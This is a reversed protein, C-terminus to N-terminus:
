VDWIESCVLKFFYPWFPVINIVFCRIIIQTLASVRGNCIVVLDKWKTSTKHEVFFSHYSLACVLYSAIIDDLSCIGNDSCFSDVNEWPFVMMCGDKAFWHKYITALEFVSRVWVLKEIKVKFEVIPTVDIELLINLWKRLSCTRWYHAHLCFGLLSHGSKYTEKKKM